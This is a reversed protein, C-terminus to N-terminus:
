GNNLEVFNTIAKEIVENVSIDEECSEQILYELIERDWASMDLEMTAYPTMKLGGDELSCTFKQGKKMNLAALEEDTFQIYFDQKVQVTKAIPMKM